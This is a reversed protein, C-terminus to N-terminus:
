KYIVLTVESSQISGMRWCDCYKNDREREGEKREREGEKREKEGEERVYGGM